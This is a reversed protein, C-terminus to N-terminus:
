EEMTTTGDSNSEQPVINGDDKGAENDGDKRTSSDELMPEEKSGSGENAENDGNGTSGNEIASDGNTGNALGDTKSTEMTTDSVGDGNAQETDM